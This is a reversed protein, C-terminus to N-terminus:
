RVLYRRDILLHQWALRQTIQKGVVGSRTVVIMVPNYRFSSSTRPSRFLLNQNNAGSAEDLLPLVFQVSAEMEAEVDKRTLHNFGCVGGFGNSSRFRSM